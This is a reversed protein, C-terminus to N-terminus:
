IFHTDVLLFFQVSFDTLNTCMRTYKSKDTSNSCFVIHRVIENQFSYYSLIKTVESNKEQTSIFNSSFVNDKNIFIIFVNFRLM